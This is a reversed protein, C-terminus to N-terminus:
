QRVKVGFIGILMAAQWPAITLGAMLTPDLQLQDFEARSIDWNKLVTGTLDCGTLKCAEFALKTRAVVAQFTADTLDCGQFHSKRLTAEAFNVLQAPCNAFKTEVFMAGSFDAGLLRCDALTCGGFKAGSFDINALDCHTWTVNVFDNRVQDPAFVCRDFTVDSVHAPLDEAVFTCREYQDLPECESLRLTQGTIAM